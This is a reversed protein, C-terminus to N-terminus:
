VKFVAISKGLVDAQDAITQSAKSNLAVAASTDETIERITGLNKSIENAAITQQEIAMSVSGAMASIEEVDLVIQELVTGTTAAEDRSLVGDQRCNEMLAVIGQTRDQLTVIIDSIEETATHTRSALARVEDAVVAFGRGQEGARAAEIAANLALLNTQEAIGQIVSLVTSISDSEKALAGVTEVSGELRDSLQRIRDIASNVKLQGQRASEQTSHAKAAAVEMSRSIDEVTGVMETVSVAVMDTEARQKEADDSTRAANKSLEITTANMEKVTHNANAIVQSFDALMDNIAAAVFGVEDKAPLAIRLSLNHTTRIAQMTEQITQLATNITRNIVWALLVGLVIIVGCFMVLMTMAASMKEDIQASLQQELSDLATESQHISQRMVLLQGEKSTLGLASKQQAYQHFGQRYDAALSMLLQTKDAPLSASQLARNLEDLRSNFAGIYKPDSRLMFDKEHRRLQLMTVLLADQNLAALESEINHVARRLEGELGQTPTLGLRTSAAVVEAFDAQYTNFHQSLKHLTDTPMSFAQMARELDAQGALLSQFTGQFAENYSVDLRALFDKEHRRLTLMNVQQHVVLNKAANMKELNNQTSYFLGLILVLAVVLLATNLILKHKILM